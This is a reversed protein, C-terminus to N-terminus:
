SFQASQSCSFRLFLNCGARRCRLRIRSRFRQERARSAVFLNEAASPIADEETTKKDESRQLWLQRLNPPTVSVFALSFRRNHPTFYRSSEPKRILRAALPVSTSSERAAWTPAPALISRSRKAKRSSSLFTSKRELKSRPPSPSM